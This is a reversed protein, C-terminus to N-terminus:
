SAGVPKSVNLVPDGFLSEMDLIAVRGRYIGRVHQLDRIGRTPSVTDLESTVYEDNGIVANVLIGAQMGQARVVIILADEAYEEDRAPRFFEKLDLVTLIEGRRNRVGLVFGPAGPVPCIRGADMIEEVHTYPIGYHEQAGLRFRIYPEQVRLPGDAAESTAFLAARDRLLRRAQASEPMWTAQLEVAEPLEAADTKNSQKGSM